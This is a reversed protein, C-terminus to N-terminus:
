NLLIVWDAGQFVERSDTGIALDALLPYACDKLEM